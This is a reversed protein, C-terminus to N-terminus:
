GSMPAWRHDSFWSTIPRVECLATFALSFERAVQLADWDARWSRESVARNHRRM